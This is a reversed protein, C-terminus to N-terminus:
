KSMQIQRMKRLLEDFDEAYLDFEGFVSTVPDHEEGAVWATKFGARRAAALDWSHAAVFWREAGRCGAEAVVRAANDYVRVDPKAVRLEDCSLLHRRDLAIGARRYYGLSTDLGGNTVGYVDFGHARLGDFCAMLGPRADMARFAGMVADLQAPTPRVDVDLILLARPLTDRLVTAIPAYADALSAYTFDRQAAYFWSFFFTKADVHASALQPGFAATIADIAAAFGFCTGIVDFCVSM